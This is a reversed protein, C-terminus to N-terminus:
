QAHTHSRDQSRTPTGVKCRERGHRLTHVNADPDCSETILEMRATTEDTSGCCCLAAATCKQCAARGRWPHCRLQQQVGHRGVHRVVSQESIASVARGNSVSCTHTCSRPESDTHRSKCRERGHRLTHVNADPDCSETILEMRATTEDTSGCCCLAAATYKQVLQAGRWPHCRLQQQV